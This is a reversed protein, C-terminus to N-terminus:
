PLIWTRAERALRGLHGRGGRFCLSGRAAQWGGASVAWPLRVDPSLKQSVKENLFHVSNVWCSFNWPCLAVELPGWRNWFPIQQCCREQGELFLGDAHAEGTSM